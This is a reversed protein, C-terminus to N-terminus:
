AFPVMIRVIKFEKCSLKIEIEKMSSVPKPLVRKIQDCSRFSLVHYAKNSLEKM